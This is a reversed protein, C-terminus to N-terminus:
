RSPGRTELYRDHARLENRWFDAQWPEPHEGAGYLGARRYEQFYARLEDASRANGNDGYKCVFSTFDPYLCAWPLVDKQPGWDGHLTTKMFNGIVLDDFVRYNVATMLSGRPVRFSIARDLAKDKSLDITTEKGGVSVQICRLFTRLHEFSGFYRQVATVDEASLPDAWHDGFAEPQCVVLPREPPCLQTVSENRCDYRIYAPLIESTKSAFGLLHDTIPTTYENAWASDIREYRHMSSFPVFYRAGIHETLKQIYEGPPRRLAAIPPIRAGSESFFNIMDADGYGSMALLFSVKRTRVEDRVRSWGGRDSADNVNAVLCGDLDVLLIADQYWDPICLVRIRDSLPTWTDDPVIRVTFGAQRLDTAIRAGRHNPVLITKDELLELSSPSLHDPHGHSIWVFRAALIAARQQEPIEHTLGWSGFYAAGVLWPDTVLVPGGDYAILTANGITDFGLDLV